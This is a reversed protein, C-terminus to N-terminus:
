VCATTGNKGYADFVVSEFECTEYCGGGVRGRVCCVDVCQNISPSVEAHGCMRKLGDGTQVEWAREM